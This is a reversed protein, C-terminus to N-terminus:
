NLQLKIRLSNLIVSLSSLTMAGAAIIPGLPTALIGAAAAPIALTNYLFAWFLNQKIVRFAKQNLNIAKVIAEPNSAVLVIDGAEATVDAGSGMAIGVNAQTLAPADNIGDGVMIVGEGKEQLKKIVAVKEKPLVRAIINNIKVQDAILKAARHHDGTLMIIKFGMKKLGRVAGAANEKPSDALAFLGLPKQNQALVILTKGKKELAIIKRKIASLDVSNETLLSETGILTEKQDIIGRVGQGPIAQFSDVPLLKVKENKAKKLIAEAIPHESYNELSAAITLVKKQNVSFSQIDSITLKGETITGTKDLVITKIKSLKEVAEGRRILIGMKAGEGIAVTLATPTALGLACPCAIILVTIASLVGKPWQGMAAWFVFTALAIFLIVPVFRATVQDALKQIPIKNGQAEEILKIIQSLFTGQGTKNIKIKLWGNQNITSQLVKSGVTKIIPQSEGTAIAENITSQGAIVEGDAPIMEGPKVLVVDGITLNKLPIIKEQGNKLVRANKPKLALLEKIAQSARGRARVELYHGILQFSIIFAAVEFFVPIKWFFAAIGFWFAASAGLSILTDMNPYAKKIARWGSLHIPWGLVYVVLFTLIAEAALRLSGFEKKLDMGLLHEAAMIAMLALSLFLAVLAQNKAKQAIKHSLAPRPEEAEYGLQRIVQILESRSVSKQAQILLLGTTFNVSANIVGPHKKLKTEIAQACALCSMGLVSLTIKKM